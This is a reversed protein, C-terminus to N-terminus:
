RRPGRLHTAISAILERTEAPKVLFDNCGVELARTRDAASAKASLAIVPLNAFGAMARIDQTARYGDIEPLMIDMMVLDTEPHERLKAYGETASAAALVTVGNSEFLSSVAYLNRMDDEIVLITKGALAQADREDVPTVTEAVRPAPKTALPQTPRTALDGKELPLYATFTSGAGLESQVVLEGGLVNVYQRSIALGLGTGGYKRAITADAQQFADFIREQQDKAIGIGTDVVSLALVAPARTLSAKLYSQGAPARGVRLEVHGHDTFKFANSLLNKLIQEIFHRDAWMTAPADPAVVIEFGLKRATAVPTFTRDVFERLLALEYHEYRPEIRGSEVKALDLIQNILTLLDRGSSYITSAWEAQKPTLV